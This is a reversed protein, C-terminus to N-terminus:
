GHDSNLLNCFYDAIKIMGKHDPHSQSGTLALMNFTRLDLVGPDQKLYQYLDTPEFINNQAPGMYVYYRINHQRFFGVLGIISAFLQMYAAEDNHLLLNARFWTQVLESEGDYLKGPTLSEFKDGNEYKWRNDSTPTGAYEYRNLFSLQILAVIPEGKDLLSCCDRITTRIIRSNCSGPLGRDHVSWNMREGIIVPYRHERPIYRWDTFSCGNSYLITM